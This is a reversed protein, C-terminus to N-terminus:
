RADVFRQQLMRLEALAFCFGNGGSLRQLAFDVFRRVRVPMARRQPYYLYQGHRESVHEILLPVLAGSRLLPAANIADLQGIGFGALVAETEAEIDNSCFGSPLHEFVLEGDVLFEWPELRMSNPQRSGTCQHQALQQRSRPLGHRRLYDPAACVILQLRFLERAVVQADPAQGSRFGIDIGAGVLDTYRDELILEFEIKPHLTRFEALLPLLLHRGLRAAAIRILGSDEAALQQVDNWAATVTELGPRVRELFRRGDDTLNSARTTRHFLRVGLESELQRIAKSAAQPTSGQAQAAAHFSGLDAVRLFTEIARLRDM